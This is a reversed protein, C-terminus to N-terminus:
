SLCKGSPPPPEAQKAPMRPKSEVLAIPAKPNKPDRLLHPVDGLQGGDLVGPGAALREVDVAPDVVQVVAQELVEAHRDAVGSAVAICEASSTAVSSAASAGSASAAGTADRRGM